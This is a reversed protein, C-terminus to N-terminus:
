FSRPSDGIGQTNRRPMNGAANTEVAIGDYQDPNQLTFVDLSTAAISGPGVVDLTSDETTVGSYVDPNDSYFEDLSTVKTASPQIPPFEMYFGSGYKPDLDPNQWVDEWDAVALGSLMALATIAFTSKM